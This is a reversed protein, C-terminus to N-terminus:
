REVAPAQRVARRHDPRSWRTTPRRSTPTRPPSSRARRRERLRDRGPQDHGATAGLSDFWPVDTKAKFQTGAAFYSEWTNGLLTAVAERDSPCAPREFLDARYCIAEPGIDTGYGILDGDSDTAAKAELRALPRGHRLVSTALKDSYQMLEPLWDIEVAEVDALGSGAALRTHPQRPGRELHGGQQPRDQREPPRGHVRTILDEYGFQNFTALTLTM